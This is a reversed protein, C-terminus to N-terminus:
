LAAVPLALAPTPVQSAWTLSPGQRPFTPHCGNLGHSLGPCPCPADPDWSDAPAALLQATIGEEPWWLASHLWGQSEWPPEPHCLLVMLGLPAAAGQWDAVWESLRQKLISM